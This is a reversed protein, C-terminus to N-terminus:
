HARPSLITDIAGRVDCRRRAGRSASEASIASIASLAILAILSVSNIVTSIALYISTSLLNSAIGVAYVLPLLPGSSVISASLIIVRAM